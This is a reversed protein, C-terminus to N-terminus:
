TSVSESNEAAFNFFSGIGFVPYQIADYNKAFLTALDEANSPVLAAPNLVWVETDRKVRGGSADVFRRGAVVASIKRPINPALEQVAKFFIDEKSKEFKGNEILVAHFVVPTELGDPLKRCKDEIEKALKGAPNASAFEKVEIEYQRDGCTVLLDNSARGSGTSPELALLHGRRFLEAALCLHHQTGPSKSVQRKLRRLGKFGELELISLGIEILYNWGPDICIAGLASRALHYAPFWGETNQPLDAAMKPDAGDQCTQRYRKRVWSGPFLQKLVQIARQMEDSSFGHVRFYPDNRVRAEVLPWIAGWQATPLSLMDPRFSIMVQSSFQSPALQQNMFLQAGDGSAADKAWVNITKLLVAARNVLEQLVEKRHILEAFNGICRTDRLEWEGDDQPALALGFRGDIGAVSVKGNTLALETNTSADNAFRISQFEYHLHIDAPM